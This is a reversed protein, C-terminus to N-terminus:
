VILFAVTVKDFAVASFKFPALGPITVLEVPVAATNLVFARVPFKNPAAVVIDIPAVVPVALILLAVTVSPLAVVIFTLPALGAITVLSVPVAATNLVFANVPLKNPAAVVTVIPAVLPVNFKRLAVTVSPLAVVIFTLPALGVRALELVPVNVNNLVLRNVTFANLAAVVAVNALLAVVNPIPLVAVAACVTFM